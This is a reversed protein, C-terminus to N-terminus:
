LSWTAGTVTMGSVSLSRSLINYVFLDISYSSYGFPSGTALFRDRRSFRQFSNKSLFTNASKGLNFPTNEQLFSVDVNLQNPPQRNRMLLSMQRALEQNQRLMAAQQINERGMNDFNSRQENITGNGQFNDRPMMPNVERRQVFDNQPHFGNPKFNNAASVPTNQSFDFNQGMPNRDNIQSMMDYFNNDSFSKNPPPQQFNRNYFMKNRDDQIKSFDENSYHGNLDMPMKFDINNTSIEDRNRDLSLNLQNLYALIETNDQNQEKFDFKNPNPACQCFDFNSYNINDLNLSNPRSYNNGSYMRPEPLSNRQSPEFFNYYKDDFKNPNMFQAGGIEQAALRLLNLHEPTVTETSPEVADIGLLANVDNDNYNVFGNNGGFGNQMNFNSYPNQDNQNFNYLNQYNYSPPIFSANGTDNKPYPSTIQIGSIAKEPPQLSSFFRNIQLFGLCLFALNCCM